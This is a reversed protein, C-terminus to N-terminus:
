SLSAELKRVASTHQTRVTRQRRVAEVVEACELQIAATEECWAAERTRAQLAEASLSSGAMRVEDTDSELASLRAFSSEYALHSSALEENRASHSGRLVDSAKSELQQCAAEAEAAITIINRRLAEEDM